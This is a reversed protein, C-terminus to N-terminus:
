IREKQNVVPPIAGNEKLIEIVLHSETRVTSKESKIGAKEDLVFRGLEDTDKLRVKAVLDYPGTVVFIEEVIGFTALRKAVDKQSLGTTIINVLATVPRGIKTADVVAKYGKIAGERELRKIRNYVTSRPLRLLKALEHIKKSSDKQLEDLLAADIKDIM